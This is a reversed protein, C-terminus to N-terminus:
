AFIADIETETLAEDATAGTAIGALKSYDTSSMLGNASATAVSYTTNNDTWPVNVYAKNNSDLVVPYNKGSATYGIKIGGLASSTAAPLTYVTDKASITNGDITINDGATLTAQKGALASNIVKNQVPNTSTSSLASDVTVKTAGTAIADLKVKDESTMPGENDKLPEWSAGNWTYFVGNNEWIVRFKNLVKPAERSQIIQKHLM